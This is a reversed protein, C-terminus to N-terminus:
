DSTGIKAGARRLESERAVREFAEKEGKVRYSPEGKEPPLERVIRFRGPPSRFGTVFEVWGDVKFKASM